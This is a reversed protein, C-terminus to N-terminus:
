ESRYTIGPRLASIPLVECPASAIRSRKSCVGFGSPTKQKLSGNAIPSNRFVDSHDSAPIEMIVARQSNRKRADVLVALHDSFVRPVNQETQDFRLDPRNGYFYDEIGGQHDAGGRSSSRYSFLIAQRQDDVSAGFTRSRRSLLFALQWAAARTNGQRAVWTM